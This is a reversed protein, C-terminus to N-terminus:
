NYNAAISIRPTANTGPEVCHRLYSRFILLLGPQPTYSIRTYRLHNKNGQTKVPYMDPEKPDEFIIKGSNEPADVYYVASFINCNHTHFEQWVDGEAINCWSYNNKYTEFCNHMKAFEHVHHNMAELLPQFIQDKNLNYTQHTNYTKGLWESGGSPTQQQISLCHSRIATNISPDIIDQAQYIAVPFWLEVKAM